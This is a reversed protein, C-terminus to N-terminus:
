RWIQQNVDCLITPNQTCERDAMKDTNRSEPRWFHSHESQTKQLTGELLTLPFFASIHVNNAVPAQSQLRRALSPNQQHPLHGAKSSNLNSHSCLVSASTPPPAASSKGSDVGKLIKHAKEELQSKSSIEQGSFLKLRGREVEVVKLDHCSFADVALTTRDEHIHLDCSKGHLDKAKIHHCVRRLFPWCFVCHQNLIIDLEVTQCKCM